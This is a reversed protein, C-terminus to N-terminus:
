EDMRQQYKGKIVILRLKIAIITGSATYVSITKRQLKFIHKFSLLTYWM